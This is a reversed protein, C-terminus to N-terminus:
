TLEITSHRVVKTLINILNYDCVSVICRSGSDLGCGKVSAMVYCSYQITSYLWNESHTLNSSQCVFRVGAALLSVWLQDNQTVLVHWVAYCCM